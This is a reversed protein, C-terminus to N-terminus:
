MLLHDLPSGACADWAAPPVEDLSKIIRIRLEIETM